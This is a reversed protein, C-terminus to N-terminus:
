QAQICETLVSALIHGATVPATKGPIGLLHAYQIGSQKAYLFDMGGPSSAVDIVRISDSMHDIIDPTIVLTPVTNICIDAHQIFHKLDTSPIFSCGMEIIRAQQKGKKAVVTVEAGVAKFLRALTKGIRGFGIIFTNSQHITQDTMEIAKQLTGEATPISNFIAIDDRQFISVIPIDYASLLKQIYGNAIGTYVVANAPLQEVYEKLFYLDDNSYTAVVKGSADTGGVPLIVATVTRFISEKLPEKQIHAHHFQIHDFGVVTMHFGAVALEQIMHITRQDGGFVLVKQKNMMKYGNREIINM